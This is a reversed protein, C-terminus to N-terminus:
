KNSIYMKKIQQDDPKILTAQIDNVSEQPIQDLHSTTDHLAAHSFLRKGHKPILGSVVLCCM